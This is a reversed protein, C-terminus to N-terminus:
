SEKLRADELKRTMRAYASWTLPGAADMLRECEDRELVPQEGPKGVRAVRSGAPGPGWTVQMSALLGYWYALPEGPEEAAAHRSRSLAEEWNGCLLANACKRLHSAAVANEREELPVCAGCLPCTAAGSGVPADFGSGCELCRVSEVAPKAASAPMAGLRLRTKKKKKKRLGSPLSEPRLPIQLEYLTPANPDESPIESCVVPFEDGADLGTGTMVKLRHLEEPGVPCWTGELEPDCVQPLGTLPSTCENGRALQWLRGDKRLLAELNSACGLEEEPTLEARPIMAAWSRLTALADEQEGEGARLCLYYGAPLVAGTVGPATETQLPMLAPRAAIPYYAGAGEGVADSLKRGWPGWLGEQGDAIRPIRASEDLTGYLGTWRLRKAASAGEGRRSCLGCEAGQGHACGGGFERYCGGDAHSGAVPAPVPQAALETFVFSRERRRDPSLMCGGISSPCWGVCEAIGELLIRLDVYAGSGPLVQGSAAAAAMWRQPLYRVYAEGATPLNKAAEIAGAELLLAKSRRRAKNLAMTQAEALARLALPGDEGPVREDFRGGNSRLSEAKRVADAQAFTWGLANNREEFAIPALVENERLTALTRRGAGTLELVEESTLYPRAKERYTSERKAM